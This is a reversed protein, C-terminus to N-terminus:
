SDAIAYIPIRYIEASWAPVEIPQERVKCDTHVVSRDCYGSLFGQYRNSLSGQNQRVVLLMIDVM